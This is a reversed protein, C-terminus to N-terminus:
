LEGRNKNEFFLTDLIKKIDEVDDKTKLIKM